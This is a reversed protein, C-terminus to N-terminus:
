SEARRVAVQASDSDWVPAVRLDVKAAVKRQNKGTTDIFWLDAAPTTTVNGLAPDAATYAITRGDPSLSAFIGWSQAHPITAVIRKAQPDLASAIWLTDAQEGFERYIFRSDSSASVGTSRLSLHGFQILGATAL